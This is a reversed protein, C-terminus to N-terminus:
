RGTGWGWRSRGTHGGGRVTAAASGEAEEVSAEGSEVGTPKSINSDLQVRNVPSPVREAQSDVQDHGDLPQKRHTGVPSTPSVGCLRAIERDSREPHRTLQTRVAKEKDQRTPRLGHKVNAQCAYDIAADIDGERIEAEIKLFGVQQAAYYRHFGEAMLYSGDPQRFLVVPPLAEKETMLEAYEAITDKSNKVRQQIDLNVVIDELKVTETRPQPVDAM